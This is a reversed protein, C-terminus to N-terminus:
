DMMVQELPSEKHTKNTMASAISEDANESTIATYASTYKPVKTIPIPRYATMSKEDSLRFPKKLDKSSRCLESIIVGIIQPPTKYNFKNVRANKMVYEHIEDYPICNPLNGRIWLNVFKEVNETSQEVRTSCILEDGKKFSLLRYDCPRSTGKLIAGQVKKTNSPKCTIMTCGKVMDIKKSKGSKDFIEYQFISMVKIFEGSISANGNEFYKEPVYYILEGDQNFICKDGVKKYFSM